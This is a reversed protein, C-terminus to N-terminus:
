QRIKWSALCDSLTSNWMRGALAGCFVYEADVDIGTLILHEVRANKLTAFFGCPKQVSSRIKLGSIRHSKGNFSGYFSGPSSQFLPVFDEVGSMDIDASQEFHCVAYRASDPSNSLVSLLKLDSASAILYPAEETGYGGSFLGDGVPEVRGASPEDRETSCAAPALLALGLLM